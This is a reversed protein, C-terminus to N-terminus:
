ATVAREPAHQEPADRRVHHAVGGARHEDNGSGALGAPERLALLSPQLGLLRMDALVSELHLDAVGSGPMSELEVLWGVVPVGTLPAQTLRMLRVTADPASARVQDIERMLWSELEDLDVPSCPHCRIAVQM